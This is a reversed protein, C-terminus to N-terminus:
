ERYLYGQDLLRARQMGIKFASDEGSDAEKRMKRSSVYDAFRRIYAAPMLWRKGKVSPYRQEMYARGPFLARMIGRLRGPVGQIRASELTINASHMREISTGGFIGADLMDTLM